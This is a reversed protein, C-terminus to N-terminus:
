PANGSITYQGISGYNSYGDAFVDGRGAGSVRLFYSGASLTASVTADTLTDPNASAIVSGGADLIELLVDINQSTADGLATFSCSGGATSFSFVDRDGTTELIGAATRAGSSGNLATATAITDGVLDARYGFGNQTVIRAIDDETNNASLYEGKSWQVLLKYYGVGMIPAWGVEGTGHGQYYAESPSIRGDHKLTLTHGVEHSTAEAIYRPSNSLQVSFVWCPTDGTWTFSNLYAVGGASGYWENDPTVICRIRRNSPAALYVSEETTVNIQFPSFDEATRRCIELIQANSLTGVVGGATITAGGAWQTGSVVQGDMDLYAVAVAGPLSNFVPVASPPSDDNMITGVAQGDAIAANVPNSLNVFFTEDPEVVTDGIIPVNLTASTKGAAITVTGSSATYDSGATASGNATSYAVSVTNKRDAKSLNVTFTLNKTGSNGEAVSADAISLTLATSAAGGAKAEQAKKANEIAAKDDEDSKKGRVKDVPPLGMHAVEGEKHDILSCILESLEHRTAVLAGADKRFEYAVPHNEYYLQALFFDFEANEQITLQGEPKGPISLHTIVTGDDETKRSKIDAKLAPIKESFRLIVPSGVEGAMAEAFSDPAITMSTVARERGNTAVTEWLMGKAALSRETLHRDSASRAPNTAQSSKDSTDPSDQSQKGWQLALLAVLLTASPIIYRTKKM